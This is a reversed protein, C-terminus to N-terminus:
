NIIEKKIEEAGVIKQVPRPYNSEYEEGIRNRVKDKEDNSIVFQWAEKLKEFSVIPRLFPILSWVFTIIGALVSGVLGTTTSKTTWTLLFYLVLYVLFYFFLRKYQDNRYDKYDRDVSDNKNEEYVESEEEFMKKYRLNREEVMARVMAENVDQLRRVEKVAEDATAEAEKVKRESEARREEDRRKENEKISIYLELEGNKIISICHDIEESSIQEPNVNDRKLEALSDKAQELTIKESKLDEEIEKYIKSIALKVKNALAVRSKAIMNFNNLKMDPVLGKNLSLWFRNTLAGLSFVFPLSNKPRIAEDGAIRFTLSNGSLLLHGINRFIKQPRGARKVNINNLFKIKEFIRDESADELDLFKQHEITFRYNGEDAYSNQKDLMIQHEKLMKKFVGQKERVQYAESCGAVIAQMASKTPNPLEEREVIRCATNFYNAIELETEEFYYLKILPKRAKKNIEEVQHYFEDFLTKFLPGNYGAMHFLIETELYINITNDISDFYGEQTTYTYGVFIITGERLLNLNDMFQINSENELIFSCVHEIFSGSYADDVIHSCFTYILANEEDHSLKRKEKTEVYAILSKFLFENKQEQEEITTKVAECEDRSLNTITFQKKDLEVFSLKKLSAEIISFPVEIGTEDKFIPCFQDLRMSTIGKEVVTQRALEAIIDYIDAKNYMNRFTALSAM